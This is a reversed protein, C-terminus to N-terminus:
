SNLALLQLLLNTLWPALTLVGCCISLNVPQPCTALVELLLHQFVAIRPQICLGPPILESAGRAAGHEFQRPRPRRPRAPFPAAQLKVPMAAVSSSENAVQSARRSSSAAPPRAPPTRTRQPTPRLESRRTPSTAPPESRRAPPARKPPARQPEPSASCEIYEAASVTNSAGVSSGLPRILCPPRVGVLIRELWPRHRAM